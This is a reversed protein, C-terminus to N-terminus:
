NDSQNNNNNSQNNNNKKQKDQLFEIQEKTLPQGMEKYKILVSERTPLFGTYKYYQLRNVSIKKDNMLRAIRCNNVGDAIYSEIERKIADDLKQYPSIKEKKVYKNNVKQNKNVM